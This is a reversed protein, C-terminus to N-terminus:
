CAQQEPQNAGERAKVQFTTLPLMLIIMIIMIIIAIIKIILIFRGFTDQVECNLHIFDSIKLVLLLMATFYFNYAQVSWLERGGGSYIEQM